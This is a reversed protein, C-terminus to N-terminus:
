GFLDPEPAAPKARAAAIREMEDIRKALEEATMEHPEKAQGAGAEGLTRDIVVKSAQVRAGAPAASDTMVSILTNVAIPLAENFLRATQHRAIEAQVEPRALNRDAERVQAYGAAVSALARDATAAYAKAFTREKATLRGNQLPM